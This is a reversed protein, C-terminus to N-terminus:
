LDLLLRIIRRYLHQALGRHRIRLTVHHAARLLEKASLLLAAQQSLGHGALVLLEGATLKKRRLVFRALDVGLLVRRLSSRTRISQCAGAPLMLILCVAVIHFLCSCTIAISWLGGGGGCVRGGCVLVLSLSFLIFLRCRLSLLFVVRQDHGLSLSMRCTKSSLNISISIRHLQGNTHLAVVTNTAMHGVGGLSVFM